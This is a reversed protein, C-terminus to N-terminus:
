SGAARRRHTMVASVDASRHASEADLAADSVIWSTGQEVRDQASVALRETLLEHVAVFRWANARRDDARGFDGAVETGRQSGRGIREKHTMPGILSHQDGCDGTSSGHCTASRMAPQMSEPRLWCTVIGSKADQTSGLRRAM